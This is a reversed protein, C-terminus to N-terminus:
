TPPEGEPDGPPLAPAPPPINEPGEPRRIISISMTTGSAELKAYLGQLRAVERQAALALELYRPGQTSRKPREYEEEAIPPCDDSGTPELATSPERSVKARRPARVARRRVRDLDGRLLAEDLAREREYSAWAADAISRQSEISRQLQAAREARDDDALARLADRAWRRVTSSSVGLEAAIEDVRRGHLYLTLAREVREVREDDRELM